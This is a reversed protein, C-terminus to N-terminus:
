ASSVSGPQVAGARAGSGASARRTSSGSTPM